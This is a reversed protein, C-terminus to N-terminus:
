LGRGCRCRNCDYTPLIAVDIEVVICLRPQVSPSWTVRDTYAMSSGETCRECRSPNLGSTM